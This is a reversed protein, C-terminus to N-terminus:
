RGILRAIFSRELIIANQPCLEHCCLCTICKKYDFEPYGNKLNIASTPCNLECVRCANCAKKDVNPRIWVLPAIARAIPKPILQYKWDSTRKFDQACELPDGLITVSKGADGAGIKNAIATTKVYDDPYGMLKGSVYDASVGDPSVILYGIRRSVGSSPGEGEMGWIADIINLIIRPKIALYLHAIFRSFEDPYPYLKHYQTKMFGPVVGFMNKVAGTMLTLIHTKLKPINIVRDFNLFARAIKLQYGQFNISEAGSAEFNVLKIGKRQALDTMGTEDFVRKVGRHAGGPSDGLYVEVGNEMLIDAIAEVVVPHTTINRAPNKASLLNPKLLVREGPKFFASAGGLSDLAFRIAERVDELNYNEVRKLIVVSM